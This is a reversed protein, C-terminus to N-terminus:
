AEKYMNGIYEFDDAMEKVCMRYNGKYKCGYVVGYSGEGIVGQRKIAKKLDAVTSDPVAEEHRAIKMGEKRTFKCIDEMLKMSSNQVMM